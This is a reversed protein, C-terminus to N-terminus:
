LGQRKAQGRKDGKIKQHIKKLPKVVNNLVLGSKGMHNLIAQILDGHDDILNQGQTNKQAGKNSDTDKNLVIFDCCKFCV